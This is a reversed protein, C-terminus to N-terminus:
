PLTFPRADARMPPRRELAGEPILAEIEAATLSLWSLTNARIRRLAAVDDGTTRVGSALDLDQADSHESSSM